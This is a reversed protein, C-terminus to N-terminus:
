ITPTQSSLFHEIQDFSVTTQTGQDLDKVMIKNERVEEDGLILAFRAQIKNARKLKKKLSGSYVVEVCCEKQRLRQALILAAHEADISGEGEESEKNSLPMIALPRPPHLPAEVLLSLREIGSAWGVAPTAPGGMNAMLSDYRGGALVTGQAGLADSVFEFATHCYYDLGRVLRDNIRYTIGLGDLYALVQAFFDQSYGNLSDRYLPANEVIAKDAPEKSDLVRLPNRELRTRSEQSLEDRYSQLYDVLLRRYNLRSELDGLTNIELHAKENLGLSQLLHYGLSIVEVDGLPEAIGFLEAGIQHFQRYRGKQPREYRFMPGAYFYRLPLNQLVGNSIIARVVAATGEPRLTIEQGGRDNFTYTEKTVIDSTEGVHTFVSSFEFIPTAMGEYGYREALAHAKEIIYHHRRYEEPLLDHTGRVPQLVSNKRKDSSNRPHLHPTSISLFM